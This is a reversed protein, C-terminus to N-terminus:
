HPSQLSQKGFFDTVAREFMSGADVVRVFVLTDFLNDAV